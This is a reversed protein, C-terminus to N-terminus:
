RPAILGAAADGISRLHLDRQPFPIEIKAEALRREVETLVVSRVELRLRIERVWVRLEFDLSSDGFGVFLAQPTPETLVADHASGSEVLIRLVHAIDSGYAVGVPMIVRAVPNSLTWNIVKESVLDANPVIMESQDFTLMITSRLGIKRITGWEGDVVVTDGVRVPREFLLILGSVFNNVVNQLGFGIGIGLAGAVIAFNQLEVGFIALAFMVGVVMLSYHVLRNISDGVGRDFDWRRYVESQVFTRVLWSVVVALYIAAFGFLVRGITLRVAGITVGANIITQWTAVPSPALEWIDLVVLAGVLILIAQLLVVIRQALPVGIRRLFAGKAESRLLTAIAGRLFAVILVIVFATAASTASAHLVWRGFMDYGLAVAILVVAWMAAGIRLPWIRRFLNSGDAAAAATRRRAYLAFVPLAVAAVAAILLRFLPAPLGAVELLLFFPYFAAFLYVTLRIARTAFLGSALAAAAGAFIAWLVVDWLPPALLVRQLALASTAFIGLAWPQHLMGSWGGEAAAYRRLFRALFGLFLALLVHFILLGAHDRLFASYPEASLAAAPRWATADEERLQSRHEASLLVPEGRQTLARRRGARLETITTALGDNDVRLEDVRRQLALLDTIVVSVRAVVSDVRQVARTVEPEVLGYDPDAALAGRWSRWIRQRDTWRSRMAGLEDLRDATRGRIAELRQDELLTQDLIRSLREPRVYDTETLTRLLLALDSHRRQAEILDAEIGGVDGLRAATREALAASDAVSRARPAIEFAAPAAPDAQPEAPAARAAAPAQGEQVSAAPATSGHLAAAAVMVVLATKM